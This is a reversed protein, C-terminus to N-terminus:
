GSCFRQKNNCIVTKSCNKKTWQKPIYLHKGWDEKYSFMIQICFQFNNKEKNPLNKFSLLLNIQYMGRLTKPLLEKNSDMGTTGIWYVWVNSKWSLIFLRKCYQTNWFNLVFCKRYKKQVRCGTNWNVLIWNQLWNRREDRTGGKRFFLRWNQM